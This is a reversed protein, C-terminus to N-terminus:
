EQIIDTGLVLCNYNVKIFVVKRIYMEIQIYKKKKCVKSIGKTSSTRPTIKTSGINSLSNQRHKESEGLSKSKKFFTSRMNKQNKQGELPLASEKETGKLETQLSFM